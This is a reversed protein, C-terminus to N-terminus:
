LENKCLSKRRMRVNRVALDQLDLQVDVRGRRMTVPCGLRASVSSPVPLVTPGRFALQSDVYVQIIVKSEHDITPKM